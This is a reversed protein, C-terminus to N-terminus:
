AGVKVKVEIEDYDVVPVLKRGKRDLKIFGTRELFLVDEYVNKYDRRLIKALERISSPKEKRITDILKKRQPTLIRNLEEMSGVSVYEIKGEKHILEKLESFLEELSEVVVKKIKM